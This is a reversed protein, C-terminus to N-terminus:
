RPRRCPYVSGVAPVLLLLLAAGCLVMDKSKLEKIKYLYMPAAITILVYSGLFGFAGM